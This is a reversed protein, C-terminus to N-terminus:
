ISLSTKVAALLRDRRLDILQCLYKCSISIKVSIRSLGKLNIVCSSFLRLPFIQKGASGAEWGRYDKQASQIAVTNNINCM